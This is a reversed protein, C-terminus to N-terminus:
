GKMDISPQLMYTLEPFRSAASQRNDLTLQEGVTKVWRDFENTSCKRKGKLLAAAKARNTEGTVRDRTQELAENLLRLEEMRLRQITDPLPADSLGNSVALPQVVPAATDTTVLSGSPLAARLVIEDPESEGALDFVRQAYSRLARVNGQWPFDMLLFELSRPLQPVPRHRKIAQCRLLHLVLLPIDERRQALSPLAVPMGNLRAWLDYRFGKAKIKQVLDANTATVIQVDVRSTQGDGLRAVEGTDAVRLLRLQTGSDIDGIEDLFVMGGDAALFRGPENRDAGTFAGKRYGFLNAAQHDPPINPLDILEFPKGARRGHRHAFRTLLGKGTSTEGTIMIPTQGGEAAMAVLNLAEVFLRNQGILWREPDIGVYRNLTQRLLRTDLPKPLYDVAGLRACQGWVEDKGLSTMMIVPVSPFHETLESLIAVGLRDDDKGFMIDLLIGDPAVSQVADIAAQVTYRRQATDWANAFEFSFILGAVNAEFDPRSYDNEMVVSYKDDLVLVTPHLANGQM